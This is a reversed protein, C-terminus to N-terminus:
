PNPEQSVRPKMSLAFVDPGATQDQELSLQYGRINLSKKVLNAGGSVKLQVGDTSATMAQLECQCANMLTDLASLAAVPEAQLSKQQKFLQEIRAEATSRFATLAPKTGGFVRSHSTLLHQELDVVEAELSRNAVQLYIVTLLLVAMTSAAVPWWQFWAPRAAKPKFEASMLSVAPFVAFQWDVSSSNINAAARLYEPVMGEDPLSISLRPIVNASKLIADVMVWGVDPTAAFGSHSGDRVLLMGERWGVSLIGSEWDLAMFDPAMATAAIGVNDAIRMWERMDQQSVAWIHLQQDDRDAVVFHMEDVPQLVRDELMWPILEAWKREPASPIDILHLGIRESPVWLSKSEMNTGAASQLPDDSTNVQRDLNYLHEVSM